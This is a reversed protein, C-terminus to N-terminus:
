VNLFAVSPDPTHQLWEAGEDQELARAWIAKIREHEREAEASTQGSIWVGLVRRLSGVEDELAAV